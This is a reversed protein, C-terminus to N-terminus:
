RFRRSVIGLTSNLVLDKLFGLAPRKKKKADPDVIAAADKLKAGISPLAEAAKEAFHAKMMQAAAAPVGPVKGAAADEIGQTLLGNLGDGIKGKKHLMKVIGLAVTAVVGVIVQVWIEDM